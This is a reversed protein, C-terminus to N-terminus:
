PAEGAAHRALRDFQGSMVGDVPGALAGLGRGNVAYTMTLTTGAGDAALEFTLIADTTMAQLPGLAAQLRLTKGPWAMLVRGHEAGGGDLRECFCSGPALALSLNAASGSWTHDGDWWRAVQGLARYVADPTAQITTARRIVFGDDHREAIEASAAVPTLVAIAAAAILTLPLTLRM